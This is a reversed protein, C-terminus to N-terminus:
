FPSVIKEHVYKAGTHVTLSEVYLKKDCFWICHTWSPKSFKWYLEGKRFDPLAAPSSILFTHNQGFEL